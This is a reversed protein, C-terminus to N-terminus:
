KTYAAEKLSICFFLIIAIKFCNRAVSKILFYFLYM